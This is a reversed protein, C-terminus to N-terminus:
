EKDWRVGDSWKIQTGQNSVKGNQTAFDQAIIKNDEIRGRSKASKGGVNEISLTSGTQHIAWVYESKTGDQYYGVWKGNLDPVDASKATTVALLYFLGITFLAVLVRCVTKRM